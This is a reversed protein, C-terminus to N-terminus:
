VTAYSGEAYWRTTFVLHPLHHTKKLNGTTHTEALFQSFRIIDSLSAVFIFLPSTVNESARIHSMQLCIHQVSLNRIASYFIPTVIPHIFMRPLRGRCYVISDIPSLFNRTWIWTANASIQPRRHHIPNSPSNSDVFVAAPWSSDNYTPKMWDTYYTATCKWSTNTM